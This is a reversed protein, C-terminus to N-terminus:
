SKKWQKYIINAKKLDEKTPVVGGKLQEIKHEVWRLDFHDINPNSAEIRQLLIIFKTLIMSNDNVEEDLVDVLRKGKMNEGYGM